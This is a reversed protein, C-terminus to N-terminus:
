AGSSRLGRKGSSTRGRRHATLGRASAERPCIGSPVASGLFFSLQVAEECTAVVIMCRDDHVRCYYPAAAVVGAAVEAVESNQVVVALILLGLSFLRSSCRYCHNRGVASM